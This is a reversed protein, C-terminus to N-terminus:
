GLPQEVIADSVVAGIGVKSVNGPVTFTLPLPCATANVSFAESSRDPPPRM